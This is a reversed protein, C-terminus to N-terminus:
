VTVEVIIMSRSPCCHLMSWKFARYRPPSLLSPTATKSGVDALNAWQEPFHCSAALRGTKDHGKKALVLKYQPAPIAWHNSRRSRSRFTGPELGPLHPPLIKKELTLRRHQSKNRYGNWEGTVRLLDRDNRWFHLHCTVALCMYVM